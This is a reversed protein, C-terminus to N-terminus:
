WLDWGSSGEPSKCWIPEKEEKTRQDIFMPSGYKDRSILIKKEKLGVLIKRAERLAGPFLSNMLESREGPSLEEWIDSSYKSPPIKSAMGYGLGLSDLFHYGACYMEYFEWLLDIPDGVKNVFNNLFDTIRWTDYESYDIYLKLIKEIEYKSDRQSFDFSILYFYTEKDLLSELIETEYVWKEFELVAEKGCLFGFIKNKVFDPLCISQCYNDM